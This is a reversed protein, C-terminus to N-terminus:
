LAISKEYSTVTVPTGKEAENFTPTVKSKSTLSKKRWIEPSSDAPNEYPLRSKEAETTPSTFSKQTRQLRQRPQPRPAPLGRKAGANNRAASLRREFRSTTMPMDQDLSSGRAIGQSSWTPLEHEDSRKMKASAPITSGTGEGYEGQENDNDLSSAMQNSRGSIGTQIDWTSLRQAPTKGNIGKVKTETKRATKATVAAVHPSPKPSLPLLTHLQQLQTPCDKAERWALLKVELAVEISMLTHKQRAGVLFHDQLAYRAAHAAASRPDSAEAEKIQAELEQVIAANKESSSKDIENNHKCSMKIWESKTRAAAQRATATATKATTETGKRSPTTATAIAAAVAAEASTAVTIATKARAEVLLVPQVACSFRHMLAFRAALLPRRALAASLARKHLGCIAPLSALQAARILSAHAKDAAANANQRLLSMIKNVKDQSDAAKTSETLSSTGVNKPGDSIFEEDDDVVVHLAASTYAERAVNQPLDHGSSISFNPLSPHFLSELDVEDVLDQCSASTCWAVLDRPTVYGDRDKDLQKFWNNLTKRDFGPPIRHKTQDDFMSTFAARNSAAAATIGSEGSKRGYGRASVGGASHVGKKLDHDRELEAAHHAAMQERMTMRKQSPLRAHLINAVYGKNAREQQVQVFQCLLGAFKRHAPRSLLQRLTKRNLVQETANYGKIKTSSSTAASLQSTMTGDRNIRERHLANDDLLCQVDSVSLSKMNAYEQLYNQFDLAGVTGHGTADLACLVFAAIEEEHAYVVCYASALRCLQLKALCVCAKITNESPLVKWKTGNGKVFPKFRSSKKDDKHGDGARFDLVIAQTCLEAALMPDDQLVVYFDWLRLEQSDNALIAAAESGHHLTKTHASTPSRWPTTSIASAKGTYVSGSKACRTFFSRVLDDESRGLPLSQRWARLDEVTVWGDNNSDLRRFLAAADVRIFFSGLNSNDYSIPSVWDFALMPFLALCKALGEESLMDSKDGDVLTSGELEFSKRELNSGSTSGETSSALQFASVEELHLDYSAADLNRHGRAKFDNAKAIEQKLWCGLDQACIYGDNNVDLSQFMAHTSENM